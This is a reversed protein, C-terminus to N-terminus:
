LAVADGFAGNALEHRRGAGPDAHVVHDAHQLGVLHRHLHASGRRAQDDVEEGLQVVDLKADLPTCSFSWDSCYRTWPLNWFSSRSM